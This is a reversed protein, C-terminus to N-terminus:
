MGSPFQDPSIVHDTSLRTKRSRSIDRAELLLRLETLGESEVM